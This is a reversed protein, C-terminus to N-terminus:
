LIVRLWSLLLLTLITREAFELACGALSFMRLWYCLHITFNALVAILTAKSGATFKSMDGCRLRGLIYVHIVVLSLYWNIFRYTFECRTLTYFVLKPLTLSIM